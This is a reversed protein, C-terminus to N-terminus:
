FKSVDAQLSGTNETLFDLDDKPKEEVLFEDGDDDDDKDDGALIVNAVRGTQPRAQIAEETQIEVKDKLRPAAPRASPPRGSKM